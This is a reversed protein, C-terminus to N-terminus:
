FVELVSYEISGRPTKVEVNDGKRKGLFAQGMPSENSIRGNIPDAENIGVIELEKEEGRDNKAKFKSGVNIIGDSTKEVVKAYKLIHEIESIKTAILAQEDKADHYEANESLDGFDKATEIKKIVLPMKVEKLEKLNAKMKIKGEPTLTFDTKPQM